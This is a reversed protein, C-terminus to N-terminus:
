RLKRVIEKACARCLVVKGVEVLGDANDCFQCGPTYKKLVIKEGDIFMEMTDKIGIGLTRRLEMPLCIRGLEDVRRVIGTSKM